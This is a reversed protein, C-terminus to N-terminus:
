QTSGGTPEVVYVVMPSKGEPTFEHKTMGKLDLANVYDDVLKMADQILGNTMFDADYNPSLNPVKIFDGLGKVYWDDWKADINKLTEEKNM